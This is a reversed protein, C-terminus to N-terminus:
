RDGDQSSGWTYRRGLMPLGVGEIKEIFNGFDKMGVDRRVCGKMEGITKVENFDGGICWPHIFTLRLSFLLECLRRRELVDNSVYVNVIICSFNSSTIGSLLIFNKNCCCESMTFAEPKWNCLLGSSNGLANVAMFEMQDGPWLSRVFSESIETKKTEQILVIEIRRVRILEKLKRMKELKGLGRINWSSM